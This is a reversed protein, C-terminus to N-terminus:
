GAAAIFQLGKVSNIGDKQVWLYYTLGVDLMFTVIGASNTQLTGAIVNAGAADTTVWVDADPIAAGAQNVFFSCATAGPGRSLALAQTTYQYKPGAGVIVLMTEHKQSIGLITNQGGQLTAIGANDPATYVFTAMRSSITADIRALEVALNTRVATGIATLATANPANILDMQAGPAARSSLVVDLRAQLFAGFSNVANYTATLANWVAAAIATFYDAAFAAATITGAVVEGLRVDVRQATLNLPQVTRWLELNANVNTGSTALDGEAGGFQFEREQQPPSAGVNSVIAIYIANATFGTLTALSVTWLGLDTTNNNGKRVTMALVETTIATVKFTNDAFDYTKLTGDAQLEYISLNTTGAILKAGASDKLSARFVIQGSTQRVDIGKPAVAM